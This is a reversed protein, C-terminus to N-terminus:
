FGHLCYISQSDSLLQGCVMGYHLCYDLAASKELRNLYTNYLPINGGIVVLRDSQPFPLEAWILTYVPNFVAIIGGTGLVLLFIITLKASANRFASKWADFLCACPSNM